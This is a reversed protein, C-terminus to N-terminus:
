HELSGRGGKWCVVRYSGWTEEKGESVMLYTHAALSPRRAGTDGAGPVLSAGGLCPLTVDSSHVSLVEGSSNLM